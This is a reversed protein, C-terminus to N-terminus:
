SLNKFFINCALDYERDDDLPIITDFDKDLKQIIADNEDDVNSLFLYVTDKYPIESIIAYNTDGISVVEVDKNM